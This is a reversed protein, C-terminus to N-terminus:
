YNTTKALAKSNNSDERGKHSKKRSRRLFRPTKNECNYFTRITICEPSKCNSEYLWCPIPPVSAGAFDLAIRSGQGFAGTRRALDLCPHTLQQQQIAGDM